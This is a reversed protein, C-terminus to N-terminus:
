IFGHEEGLEILASEMSLGNGYDIEQRSKALDAMVRESTLPIFPSEPKRSSFLQKTYALVLLRADEPMAELMSVAAEITSM